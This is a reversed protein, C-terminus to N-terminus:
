LWTVFKHLHRQGRLAKRVEGVETTATQWVRVEKLTGILKNQDQNKPAFVCTAFRCSHVQYAFSDDTGPRMLGHWDAFQGLCPEPSVYIPDVIEGLESVLM